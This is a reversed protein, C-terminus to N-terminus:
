RIYISLSFFLSTCVLTFWYTQWRVIYNAFNESYLIWDTHNINLLTNLTNVPFLIINSFIQQAFSVSKKMISKAAYERQTDLNQIGIRFTFLYKRSALYLVIVCITLRTRNNVLWFNLSPILYTLEDTPLSEQFTILNRWWKYFVM